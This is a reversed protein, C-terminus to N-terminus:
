LKLREKYEIPYDTCIGKCIRLDSDSYEAIEPMVCISSETLLKNPFTWIYNKSTLTVDDSDHFFCNINKNKLLRELCEINKAHCWLQNNVLFELEIEYDPSDHGLFFKEDKYWVDVEAHFGMALVELILEPSNERPDNPGNLNGRHSIIYM